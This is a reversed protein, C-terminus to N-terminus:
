AARRYKRANGVRIRSHMVNGCVHQLLGDGQVVYQYSQTEAAHRFFDQMQLVLNTTTKFTRGYATVEIENPNPNPHGGAHQSDSFSCDMGLVRFRRYGLASGVSLARTGVTTGGLVLSADPYVSAVYRAEEDSQDSHWMVVEFGELARFVDPHCCSAIFYTCDKHPRSLFKAKHARPDCEVHARPVIGADLLVDHAGSVSWVDGTASWLDDRLSPGYCCLVMEREHAPLVPLQPLNRLFAARMNGIREAPEVCAKFELAM